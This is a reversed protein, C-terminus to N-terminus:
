ENPSPYKPRQHRFTLIIPIFTDKIRILDRRSLPVLDLQGEKIRQEFVSDVIKRIEEETSASRSAAESSDALMVIAEEPTRPRPGPYRFQEEKVRLGMDLAKKYFPLLLTDGHHSRIIDIIEQPLRYKQALEVGKRVHGIIIQASKVPDLKDHPNEGSTQNEIFYEPNFIKGIDHYYGGLKAITENAGVAKAGAEAMNGVIISHAFTGPAKESLERLLPHNLSALEIFSLETTRRFMAEIIPLLVAYLGVSVVSLAATIGSAYLIEMRGMNTFPASILISMIGFLTIVVAIFFYHARRKFFKVSFAAASAMSGVYLPLMLSFDYSVGRMVATILALGIAMTPTDLVSISLAVFPMVTVFPSLNFFYHIILDTLHGVSFVFVSAGSPVDWKRSYFIVLLVVAMLLSLAVYSWRRPELLTREYAKLIRYTEEDIIQGRSVVIEGPNVVYDIRNLKEELQRRVYMERLASDRVLTPVIFKCLTDNEVCVDAPSKLIDGPAPHFESGDYILVTGSTKPSIVGKQLITIAKEKFFKARKPDIVKVLSDYVREVHNLFPVNRYVPPIESVIKISDERYKEPSKEVVIEREAIITTPSVEGVQFRFPFRFFFASLAVTLSIALARLVRNTVMM